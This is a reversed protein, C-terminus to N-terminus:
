SRAQEQASAEVEALVRSLISRRRGDDPTVAALARALPAIAATGFRCLTATAQRRTKDDTDDLVGILPEISAPSMAEDLGRAAGRRILHNDRRLAEILASVAEATGIAGLEQAIFMGEWDTLER